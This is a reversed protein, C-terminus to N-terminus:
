PEPGLAFVVCTRASNASALPATSARSLIPFSVVIEPVSM